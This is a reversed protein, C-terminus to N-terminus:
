LKVIKFGENEYTDARKKSHNKLFKSSDSFDYVILKGGDDKIRLGRGAHQVTAVDSAGGGALILTSICHIDVGEGFIESSILVLNGETFEKQTTNRVETSDKGSIFCVPVAKSELLSKLRNGHDIHRTLIMVKRGADYNEKAMSVIMGNRTESEVIGRRHIEPWIKSDIKEPNSIIRVEIDSLYGEAILESASKSFFPLGYAALMKMNSLNDRRLVTASLGFRFYASRCFMAVKFFQLASAHHCEDQFLVQFTNLLDITSEDKRDLRSRLTQVTAVVVDSKADYTNDGIMGVKEGLRLSLREATQILLTKTHVLFLTKLGIAQIVGSAIETKGSGTACELIGREYEVAKQIAEIQYPRLSIGKLMGASIKHLKYEPRVRGDVIEYDVEHEDLYDCVILLLGTPFKGSQQLFHTKGDWIGARFQPSFFYGEHHIALISELEPPIQCDV